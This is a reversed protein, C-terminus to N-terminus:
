PMHGRFLDDIFEFLYELHTLGGPQDAQVLGDRRHTSGDSSSAHSSRYEATKPTTHHVNMPLHTDYM